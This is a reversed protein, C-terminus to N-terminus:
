AEQIQMGSMINQFVMYRSEEKHATANPPKLFCLHTDRLM